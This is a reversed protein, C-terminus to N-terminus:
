DEEKLMETAYFYVGFEDLGGDPGIAIDLLEILQEKDLRMLLERTDESMNYM